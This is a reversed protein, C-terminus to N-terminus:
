NRKQNKTSMKVQPRWIRKPVKVPKTGDPLTGTKAIKEEEETASSAAFTKSEGIETIMSHALPSFGLIKM